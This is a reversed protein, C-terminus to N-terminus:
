REEPFAARIARSVLRWINYSRRPFRDVRGRRAACSRLARVPENRHPTLVRAFHAADNRRVVHVDYDAKRGDDHTGVNGIMMTGIIQRYNPDNASRVEITVVIM